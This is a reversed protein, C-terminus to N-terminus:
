QYGKWYVIKNELARLGLDILVGTIGMIIIGVFIVSSKLYRSADIVMWGIGSSAAVMEASVLTTYAMGIATRISTFIDPLSAPFVVNFFVDRENAGLSKASLIYDQNINTVASVCAVYIPAFAALYLLTIKSSEDIGLWLILVVYYALPPLPRYFQVISDVIARVKEFYGSLLGLPIATVIALLSAVFLRYFSIGLHAWLSRGNYGNELISLFTQFVAGPSPVVLPSVLGLKTITFWVILIALWTGITLLRNTSSNKKKNQM